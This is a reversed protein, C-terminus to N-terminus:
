IFCYVKDALEEAWNAIAIRQEQTLRAELHIAKYIRLPMSGDNVEEAIEDLLKLQDRISLTNWKSFDLKERGNKVDKVVLWSVPAVYAYWPFKVYQSHCDYCANKILLGVEDPISTVEFLDHGHEPFNDPKEYPIFQILVIALLVVLLVLKRKNKM